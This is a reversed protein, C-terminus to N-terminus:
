SRSSSWGIGRDGGSSGGGTLTLQEYSVKGTGLLSFSAIQWASKATAPMFKLKEGDLKFAVVIKKGAYAKLSVAESKRYNYSSGDPMSEIKISEWTAKDPIM